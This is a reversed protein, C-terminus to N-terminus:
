LAGFHLGQAWTSVGRAGLARGDGLHACRIDRLGVRAGLAGVKLCGTLSKWTEEVLGWLGPGASHGFRNFLACFFFCDFYLFSSVTSIQGELPGPGIQISQVNKCLNANM